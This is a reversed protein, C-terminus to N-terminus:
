SGSGECTCTGWYYLISDRYIVPETRVVRYHMNRSILTEGDRLQCVAPLLFEYEEPPVMGRPAYDPPNKTKRVPYLFGTYEGYREVEIATGYKSLLRNFLAQM